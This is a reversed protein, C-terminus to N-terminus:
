NRPPFYGTIAICFNTVAFPQMNNHAVGGVTSITGANLPALSSSTSSLAGYLSPATPTAKASSVLGKDVPFNSTGVASLAKFSHTHSTVNQATLAVSEAGGTAGTSYRFGDSTLGAGLPARGRFDPINFTTRGDGGFQVGLLSYLAANQKIQMEAGNCLAWGKPAWSYTFMRVEGIFQDSVAM